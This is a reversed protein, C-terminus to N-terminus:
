TGTPAPYCSTQLQNQQTTVLTLTRLPHLNPLRPRYHTSEAHLQTLCDSSQVSCLSVSLTLKYFQTRFCQQFPMPPHPIPCGTVTWGTLLEKNLLVAELLVLRYLGTYGRDLEVDGERGNRGTASNLALSDKEAKSFGRKLTFCASCRKWTWGAGLESHAKSKTSFAAPTTPSRM